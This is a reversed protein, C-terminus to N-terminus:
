SISSLAGCNVPAAWGSTSFNSPLGIRGDLPGTPPSAVTSAPITDPPPWLANQLAAYPDLKGMKYDATLTSIRALGKSQELLNAAALLAGWATTPPQASRIATM